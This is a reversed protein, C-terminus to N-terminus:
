SIVEAVNDGGGCHSERYLLEEVASTYESLHKAKKIRKLYPEPNSFTWSLYFWLEKMKFLVDREGSMIQRYDAVLRNHFQRFTAIDMPAQGRLQGILGPNAIIGRGLMVSEVQPFQQCLGQMSEPTFIDGNYVVPNKSHELAYHFMERNPENRYYDERVRPHIILEEMPYQNYVKLIERFEEPSEMGIRTKVSIKGDRNQFVGDLFADLARIDELLGAGRGKSVVTGSPCGANINIERYGLEKLEQAIRGFDEASKTMVQPVVYMGENHERILDNRERGNFSRKTHPTVFPTFYKDAPAFFTHYANRYVYGTIGELPAMYLKM